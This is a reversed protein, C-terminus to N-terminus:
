WLLTFRAGTARSIEYATQRWWRAGLYPPLPMSARFAEEDRWIGLNAVGREAYQEVIRDTFDVLKEVVEDPVAPPIEDRGAEWARLTRTTVQLLESMEHISLGYSERTCQLWAADRRPDDAEEGVPPTNSAPLTPSLESVPYETFDLGTDTDTDTGFATM